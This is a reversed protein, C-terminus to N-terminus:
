TMALQIRGASLDGYYEITADSVPLTNVSVWAGWKWVLGMLVSAPVGILYYSALAICTGLMQRGCGRLIAASVSLTQSLTRCYRVDILFPDRGSPAEPEINWAKSNVPHLLPLTQCLM